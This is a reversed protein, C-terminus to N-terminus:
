WSGFSIHSTINAVNKYGKQIVNIRHKISQSIRYSDSKSKQYKKYNNKHGAFAPSATALVIAGTTILAIAKQRM